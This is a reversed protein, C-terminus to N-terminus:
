VLAILAATRADPAAQGALAEVISQRVQAEHGADLAPWRRITFLGLVRREDAHIVGRDALRRYLVQRLNRSLPRLVAAPKRGRHAAAIELASDLVEDGTPSQDLVVVRGRRAEDGTGSLDVRNMLTLEVLNAGALALDVQEALASLRGSVDDTLLLLLEEAILM